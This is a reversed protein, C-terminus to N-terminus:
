NKCNKEDGLFLGANFSSACLILFKPEKCNIEKNMIWENILIAM